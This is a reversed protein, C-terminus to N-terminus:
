KSEMDFLSKQNEALREAMCITDNHDGGHCVLMIEEVKWGPGMGNTSWGFSLVVADPSALERFLKRCKKNLSANQTDQMTATLGIEKYCELIQRPSYPPDFLFLDAKVGDTVLRELFVTAQEHYEATTNPNIDNTFTAWSCNRAFPDISIQSSRLYTKVFAGIAPVTFTDRSPM